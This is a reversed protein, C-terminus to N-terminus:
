DFLRTGPEINVTGFRRVWVDHGRSVLFKCIRNARRKSVLRTKHGIHKTDRGVDIVVQYAM